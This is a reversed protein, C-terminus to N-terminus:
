RGSAVCALAELATDIEDATNFLSFSFRTMGRGETGFRRHAMPACHSGPRTAISHKEWLALSVEDSSLGDVNLSVIPLRPEGAPPGYVRVRPIAQAGELFRRTLEAERAFIADTGFRNVFAAGERLGALGHANQTGAELVGPMQRPHTESFSDYGSGGSKVARFTLERRAIVGGTGQPGFLAKHGTFCLADAMDASVHACGLTQAADLIFILGNGRCFRRITDTDSINGLLNSGHHCVFFRTNKDLHKEMDELLLNGGDDCGVFSLLCGANYLPRLVSNHELVTTIVGDGPSVLGSLVLNLSETAGSTFAVRLPDDLGTLAALESRAEFVARLAAMAPEHFSRGPNGLGNLARGVAEAVGPPKHLSTAANDFYIM